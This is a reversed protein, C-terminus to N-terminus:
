TVKKQFAKKKCMECDFLKKGEHVASIHKDMNGKDTFSKKVLIANPHRKEKMFQHWTKTKQSFIEECVNRKFAKKRKIASINQEETQLIIKTM